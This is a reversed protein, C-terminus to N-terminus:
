TSSRIQMSTCGLLLEPLLLSRSVARCCCSGSSAVQKWSTTCHIVLGQRVAHLLLSSSARVWDADACIESMNLFKRPATCSALQPWHFGVFGLPKFSFPFLKWRYNWNNYVDTRQHGRGVGFVMWLCVLLTDAAGALLSAAFAIACLGQLAQTTFPPSSVLIHPSMM